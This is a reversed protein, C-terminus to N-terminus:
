IEHYNFYIGSTVKYKDLSKQSVFKKINKIPISWKRTKYAIKDQEEMYKKKRIFRDDEYIENHLEKEQFFQDIKNLNIDGFQIDREKDNSSSYLFKNKINTIGENMLIRREKNKEMKRLYYNDLAQKVQTNSYLDIKKQKSSKLPTNNINSTYYYTKYFNKKLKKCLYNNNKRYIINCKKDINNIKIDDSHIPFLKKCSINKFKNNNKKYSKEKIGQNSDNDENLSESNNEESDTLSKNEEKERLLQKYFELGEKNGIAIDKLYHYNNKFKNESIKQYTKKVIKILNKSHISDKCFNYERILHSNLQETSNFGNCKKLYISKKKNRYPTKPLNFNDIGHSSKHRKNYKINLEYSSIIDQLSNIDSFERFFKKNLSFKNTNNNLPSLFSKKNNSDSLRESVKDLFYNIKKSNILKKYKPKKELEKSNIHFMKSNFINEDVKSYNNSIDKNIDTIINSKSIDNNREDSLSFSSKSNNNNINFCFNSLTKNRKMKSNINENKNINQLDSKPNNDKNKKDSTVSPSEAIVGKKKSKKKREKVKNKNNDFLEHLNNKNNSNNILGEFNLALKKKDLRILSVKEKAINNFNKKTSSFYPNFNFINYNYSDKRLIPKQPTETLENIFNKPPSFKPTNQDIFFKVSSVKKKSRNVRFSNNNEM